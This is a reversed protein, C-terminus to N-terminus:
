RFFRMHFCCSLRNPSKPKPRSAEPQLTNLTEVMSYVSFLVMLSWLAVRYLSQVRLGFLLHMHPHTHTHTHIYIYIYICVYKIHIYTHVYTHIYTRMYTHIYTPIYTHTYIYIIYIYINYAYAYVVIHYVYVCM